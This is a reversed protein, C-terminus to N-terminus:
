SVAVALFLHVQWFVWRIHWPVQWSLVSPAAPFTCEVWVRGAADPGGGPTFPLLLICAEGIHALCWLLRSVPALLTLGPLAWPVLPHSLWCGPVPGPLCHSVPSRRSAGLGWHMMLSVKCVYFWLDFNIFIELCYGCFMLGSACLGESFLDRHLQM